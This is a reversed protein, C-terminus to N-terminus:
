RGVKFPSPIPCGDKDYYSDNVANTHIYCIRVKSVENMLLKYIDEVKDDVLFEDMAM